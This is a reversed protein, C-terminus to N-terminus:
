KGISSIVVVNNHEGISWHSNVIIFDRAVYVVIEKGRMLIINNDNNIM